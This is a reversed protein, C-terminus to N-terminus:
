KPLRLMAAAVAIRMFKPSTVIGLADIECARLERVNLGFTNATVELCAAPRDAKAALRLQAPIGERRTVSAVKGRARVIQGLFTDENVRLPTALDERGNFLMAMLSIAPVALMDSDPRAPIGGVSDHSWAGTTARGAGDEAVFRRVIFSALEDDVFLLRLRSESGVISARVVEASYKTSRETEVGLRRAGSVYSNM